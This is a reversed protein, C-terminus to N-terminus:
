WYLKWEPDLMRHLAEMYFYCGWINMEDVGLRAPKSYTAHFLLGNAKEDDKTLYGDILSNMMRNCANVYIKRLPDNEDMHKIGELIGCLAIAAASSAAFSSIPLAM